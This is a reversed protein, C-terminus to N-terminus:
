QIPKATPRNANLAFRKLGLHEQRATIRLSLDRESLEVLVGPALSGLRVWPAGDITMRDGAFRELDARELAGVAAWVDGARILVLIQGKDVHNVVLDLLARQDSQARAATATGGIATLCLVFRLALESSRQRLALPSM